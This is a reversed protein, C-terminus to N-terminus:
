EGSEYVRWHWTSGDGPYFRDCFDEFRYGECPDDKSLDLAPHSQCEAIFEKVDAEFQEPTLM